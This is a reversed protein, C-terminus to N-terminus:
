QTVELTVFSLLELADLSARERAAPSLMAHIAAAHMRNRHSMSMRASHTMRAENAQRHIESHAKRLYPTSALTLQM